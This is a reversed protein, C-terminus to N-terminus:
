KHMFIADATGPAEIGHDIVALIKLDLEDFDKRSLAQAELAVLVPALMPNHYAALGLDDIPAIDEDEGVVLAGIDRFPREVAKLIEIGPLTELDHFDLAAGQGDFRIDFTELIIVAPEFSSGKIVFLLGGAEFISIRVM